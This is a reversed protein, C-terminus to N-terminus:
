LFETELALVSASGRAAEAQATAFPLINEAYFRATKIKAALFDRDGEERDLSERAALAGRALLWGGAVTGFLKLYPTAGAAAEEIDNKWTELLWDTAEELAEAAESLAENIAILDENSSDELHNLTTQVGALFAQVPKGELRCIKRGILDMAQIGNTGEYIPLIRADRYHQAAGTEEIFGMGGHVQVGLSAVECGIDTCWAKVVPILLEVVDQQQRSRESEEPHRLARDLAGATYYSLARAAETTARMTMLMRRVDPHSVIRTDKTRGDLSRGQVRERAYALAQQTAREAIAIGQVGVALRANNMMTFMCAMGGHEQGILYGTAGGDDGYAMVCTPSAKIGLKHEISACRLDNRAGPTGDEKPIFKPVLFLSIGKTGEPANPLRALVMHVINETFDHEGYTIYIKQGTIRYSGDAQKEARTKVAGVDSGAQPETLNMTGTWEGSIMKPLYTAKQEDSGHTQLLEVAGVNLLPCLAFSMNASNLMEQVPIALAWPLGQGGFAPDFPLSNWGGEVYHRYAEKFGAPTHVAGNEYVSGAIDGSRNLPALEERCLKGAETLIAEALDTSAEEYGPLAAIEPLGAIERLLFRMEDLPAHYDSM